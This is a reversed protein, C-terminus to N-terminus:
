IKFYIVNKNRIECGKVISKKRCIKVAHKKIVEEYPVLNTVHNEISLFSFERGKANTENNVIRHMFCAVECM